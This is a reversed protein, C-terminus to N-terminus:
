LHATNEIKFFIKQFLLLKTYTILDHMMWLSKVTVIQSVSPSVRCGSAESHQEIYVQTRHSALIFFICVEAGTPLLVIPELKQARLTSRGLAKLTSTTPRSCSLLTKESVKNIENEMKIECQFIM